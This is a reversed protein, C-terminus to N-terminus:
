VTRQRRIEVGVRGEVVDLKEVRVSVAEVRPHKLTLAAVDEAMTELFDVHGRGAVLRIADLIVDYSFVSRMDDAHSAVRSVSAEVSFLMRQARGREHAYAGVEASIPFDRVFVTDFGDEGAAGAIEPSGGAPERRDHAAAVLDQRPILDRILAIRGADLRGSRSGRASLASRFGLVDPELLLLRPVDPAQLSGALASKLGHRRCLACFAELRPPAVHDLLRKGSKEAADLMVAGFGIAELRPLLDFDPAQDSFLVAILGIDPALSKLAPELGDLAGAGAALRVEDVGAKALARARAALAEGDYPPGGLAASVPRRKGIAAVAEAVAEVPLAGLSSSRPDAFDIVDAGGQLALEAEAADVVSALMLTM